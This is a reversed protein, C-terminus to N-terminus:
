ADFGARSLFASPPEDLTMRYGTLVTGPPPGDVGSSWSRASGHCADGDIILEFEVVTAGTPAGSERDAHVEVFRGRVVDGDQQWLGMGASDSANRNGGDPNSQAMTGNGHFTFVHHRFPADPAVLLWVGTVPRDTM